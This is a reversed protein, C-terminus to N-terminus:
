LHRKSFAVRFANSDERGIASRGGAVTYKSEPCKTSQVTGMVVGEPHDLVAVTSLIAEKGTVKGVLGM